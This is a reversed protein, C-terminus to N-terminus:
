SFSFPTGSCLGDARMPGPARPEDDRGPEARGGLGALSRFSFFPGRLVGGIAAPTPQVREAGLANSPHGGPM